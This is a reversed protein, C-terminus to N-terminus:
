KRLDEWAEQTLRDFDVMEDSVKSYDSKTNEEVRDIYIRQLSGRFFTNAPYWTYFVTVPVEGDDIQIVTEFSGEKTKM